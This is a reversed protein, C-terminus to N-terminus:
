RLLHVWGNCTTFDPLVVDYYYIGTPLNGGDWQNTYENNQYVVKGTRDVITVPMPQIYQIEFRD